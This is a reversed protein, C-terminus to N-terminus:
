IRYDNKPHRCTYRVMLCLVVFLALLGLRTLDTYCVRNIVHGTYLTDGTAIKQGETVAVKCDQPVDYTTKDVTIHQLGDATEIKEVTGDNESYFRDATWSSNPGIGKHTLQAIMSTNDLEWGHLSLRSWEENKPKVLAALLIVILLTPTVYKMVYKLAVPLKIQANNNIMKWGKDMGMIWAFLICEITGYIVLGMSGGWFDFEDFVGQNFWVVTPLGVFCLMLCFIVSARSRSFSFGGVLFEISPVSVSLISTISAFFLLGFFATGAIVQWVSCWQTFLFPLSRFGLGMGGTQTMAVVNDIGFYGIAIPIIIASGLVIEAFENTFCATISNMAVDDRSRLFSAYCQIAGMGLSCTFFIQGAAALWVKPDKLSDFHPYWLFDFGVLGDYVAGDVGAKLTYAKFALVVALFFLMPMMWKSVKEIGNKIGKALIYGNICVCVLYFFVNELPFGLTSKSMDLYSIFFNSVESSTMGAFIGFLSHFTYALAWSEIYCYYASIVFSCFIGMSGVYKWIKNRHMVQTIMPPTHYGALGGYKGSTWEILSLPIGLLVFSVLYPIIFSGGGNQIAQVPFRIFNGVGVASGAMALILGVRSGWAQKRREQM